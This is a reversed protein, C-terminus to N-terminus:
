LFTLYTRSHRCRFERNCALFESFGDDSDLLSKKFVKFLKTSGDENTELIQCCVVAGDGKSIEVAAASGSYIKSYAKRWTPTEIAGCVECFPPLEGTAVAKALKKQVAANRKDKDWKTQRSKPNGEGEPSGANSAATRAPKLPIPAPDSTTAEGSWTQARKFGVARRANEHSITRPDRVKREKKSTRSSQGKGAPANEQTAPAQVYEVRPQYRKAIEVDEVPVPRDVDDAEDASLDNLRSMLIEPETPPRLPPLAPSSQCTINDPLMPPSSGPEEPSNELGLLQTAEPSTATSNPLSPVHHPSLYPSNYGSESATFSEHSLNSKFPALRSRCQHNAAQPIPTPARPPEELNSVPNQSPRVASPQHVRVSAAASAAVRLSDVKKGLSSKGPHSAQTVKARKRPRGEEVREDNSIYGSDPPGSMSPLNEISVAPYNSQRSEPRSSPGRASHFSQVSPAPSGGRFLEQGGAPGSFSLSRPYPGQDQGNPPIYGHHMLRQVQEIGTDGKSAESMTSSNGSKLVSLIAPNAKLFDNWGQFDFGEPMLMSLRRYKDMSDVYENQLATPVPVLRLKVELTEPAGGAFLGLTRCVRGTVMTQSQEAPAPPRSSALAWSLMGQGVLPTEYESYDYAYITYDQGLKAVLEPSANVIANICTKLEIVGVQTKEDLFATRVRIEDRWRVLHNTKNENDFTYHVKVVNTNTRYFCTDALSTRKMPRLSDNQADTYSSVSPAPSSPIRRDLHGPYQPASSLDM